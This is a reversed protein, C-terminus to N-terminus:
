NAEGKKKKPGEVPADHLITKGVIDDLIADLMQLHISQKKVVDLSKEAMKVILMLKMRTEILSNVLHYNFALFVALVLELINAYSFTGQILCIIAHYTFLWCALAVAKGHIEQQHKILFTKIKQKM